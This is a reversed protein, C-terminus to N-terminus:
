AAKTERALFVIGAILFGFGFIGAGIRIYTSPRFFAMFFNFFEVAISYLKGFFDGLAAINQAPAITAAIIPGLQNGFPIGAPTATATSTASGAKGVDSQGTIRGYGDVHALYTADLPVEQVVGGPHPAEIIKGDGAYIAVHGHHPVDDGPWESFVLDGPQLDAYTIRQSDTFQESSVRPVGKLGVQNALNLVLGSCDFASPGVAGYKYPKGLQARAAAVLEAGYDVTDVSSV